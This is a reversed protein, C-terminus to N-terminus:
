SLKFINKARDIIKITGNPFIQGVDGSKLWGDSEFGEENKDPRKYYGTTINKGFM